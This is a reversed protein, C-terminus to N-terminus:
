IRRSIGDCSIVIYRVISERERKGETAIGFKWKEGVSESPREFASHAARAVMDKVEGDSRKRNSSRQVSEFRVTWTM